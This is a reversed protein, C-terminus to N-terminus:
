RPPVDEVEADLIEKPDRAAIAKQGVKGVGADGRITQAGEIADQEFSPLGIAEDQIMVKGGAVLTKRSADINITQGKSLPLFGMHDHLMKRDPMGFPGKAAQITAEVIEPHHVAAILKSIDVNRKWLAPIILGLLEDPTIDAASCLDELIIKEKDVGTASDYAYVFRKIREDQDIVLRAANICTEKGGAGKFVYALTAEFPLIKPINAENSPRGLKEFANKAAHQSDKSESNKKRLGKAGKTRKKPGQKDLLADWEPPLYGDSGSGGVPRVGGDSSDPTGTGGSPGIGARPDSEHIEREVM